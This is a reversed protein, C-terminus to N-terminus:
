SNQILDIGERLIEQVNHKSVDVFECLALDEEIVEYIGLAEMEDYDEAIIAKILYTPLIDMPIVKEFVGTQVFARPEGRTNSDVVFEKNPALFSLLGFARQFSLKNITPKIWGLFEYYDGEPIVTVLHDFFGLYGEPGIRTGTLVNGSVVRVHNQKLNNQLFKNVCAGTFTKYYQPNKVESGAVAVVKAADYIGNLFLKGIQIVGQPSVTWVADGKNIPDLHHIQVGVCGSPHPGSFKNLEVGKVQSFVPSIERGSHVNVHVPGSTFKKLVDIGAQFFQEQGKFLLNYDPALPGSDFASIFISKPKEAPDAVVGFPRQVINVWVGSTLLQELAKERSLNALESVSYKNFSLYEITKDALIKIELLKRKEGRKIEVVEGSVPATFVLQENKKDHFLVSGAKVQDGEKVVPKPMYIGHFDTPKIAFTEPQETQAITLAAKGALNIDFGKRLRIFKGM